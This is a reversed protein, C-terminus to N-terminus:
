RYHRCFVYGPWRKRQATDCDFQSIAVAPHAGEVVDVDAAKTLYDEPRHGRFRGTALEITGNRVNFLDPDADLEAVGIPLESRALELMAASTRASEARKAFALLARRAGEEEIREVEAYLRRATQKARTRIADAGDREWARGNWILWARMEACYLVSEWHQQVFREALGVETYHFARRGPPTVPLRTKAAREFEEAVLAPLDAPDLAHASDANSFRVAVLVDRPTERDHIFMLRATERLARELERRKEGEEAGSPSAAGLSAVMAARQEEFARARAVVADDATM